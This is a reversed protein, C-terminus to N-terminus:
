TKPSDRGFAPALLLRIEVWRRKVTKLCVGLAAATEKYSLRKVVIYDFLQRQDPRLRELIRLQDTL